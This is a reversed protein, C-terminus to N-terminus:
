STVCILAGITYRQILKYCMDSCWNYLASDVTVALPMIRRTRSDATSCPATLEGQLPLRTAGHLWPVNTLDGRM